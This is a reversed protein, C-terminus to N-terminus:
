ASKRRRGALLGCGALALVGAGPAPIPTQIATLQDQATSSQLVRLTPLPNSSVYGPSTIANLWGQAISKPADPSNAKFSGTSILADSDYVLEWVALQFAASKDKSNVQPLIDAWLLSLLYTQNGTFGYEVPSMVNFTHNTNATINQALDICYSTFTRGITADVGPGADDTRQWGFQTTRVGGTRHTNTINVDKDFSGTFKGRITDASAQGAAAAITVAAFTAITRTKM